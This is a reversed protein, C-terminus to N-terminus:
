NPSGCECHTSGDPNKSQDTCVGGQAKCAAKCDKKCPDDGCGLMGLTVLVSLLILLNKM